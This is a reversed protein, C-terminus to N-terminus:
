KGIYWDYLHEEVSTIYDKGKDQWMVEVTVKLMEISAPTSDLSILDVYIRRKFKSESGGGLDYSYFGSDGIKLKQGTYAVLNVDNYDIQCGVVDSSECGDLRYKYTEDPGPSHYNDDRINRVLETGEQALYSAILQDTVTSTYFLVKQLVAFASVVGVTLLFISVSLEILTFGRNKM